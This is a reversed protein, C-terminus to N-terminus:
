GKPWDKPLPLHGVEFCWRTFSRMGETGDNYIVAFKSIARVIIMAAEFEAIHADNPPTPHKLWVITRNYDASEFTPSAKLVSFIHPEDTPPLLGEAAAALTIACEYEDKRFHAIAAEIQRTAALRKTTKVIKGLENTQQDSRALAGDIMDVTNKIGYAAAFSGFRPGREQGLLVQYLM